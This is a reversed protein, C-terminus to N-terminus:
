IIANKRQDVLELRGVIINKNLITGPSLVSNAGIICGDSILAGFKDVGTKVARGEVICIIEKEQYENLTNAIVAGGEIIVNSGIITDGIFNLHAIKTNSFIMSSKVESSPGININDGMFVGGRIYANAGIFCGAGIIAPGKIVAGAEVLASKHIAVESDTIYDSPLKSLLEKIINTLNGCIEWPMNEKLNLSEIESIYNVINIM